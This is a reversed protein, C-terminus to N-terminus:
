ISIINKAGDRNIKIVVVFFIECRTILSFQMYSKLILPLEQEAERRQRGEKKFVESFILLSRLNLVTIATECNKQPINQM